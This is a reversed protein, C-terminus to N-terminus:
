TEAKWSNGFPESKDSRQSSQALTIAMLRCLTLNGSLFDLIGNHSRILYEYEASFRAMTPSDDLEPDDDPRCVWHSDFSKLSNLKLM